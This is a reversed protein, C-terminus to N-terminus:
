LLNANYVTKTAHFIRTFYYVLNDKLHLYEQKTNNINTEILKSVEVFIEERWDSQQDM